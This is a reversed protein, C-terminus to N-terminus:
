GFASNSSLVIVSKAVLGGGAAKKTEVLVTAGIPIDGNFVSAKEIKAGAISVSASKGNLTTISLSKPTATDVAIGIQQSGPVTIVGVATVRSRPKMQLVVNDGSAIDSGTAAVAKDIITASTITVKQSKGNDDITLSDASSATVKGTVRANAFFSRHAGGPVSSPTPASHKSSRVRHQEIKYGGILGIILAIALASAGIVFDQTKWRRRQMDREPVAKRYTSTM